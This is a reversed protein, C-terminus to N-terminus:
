RGEGSVIIADSRVAPNPSAECWWSDPPIVWSRIPVRWHDHTGDGSTEFTLEIEVVHGTTVAEQEHAIANTDGAAPDCRAHRVAVDGTRERRDLM